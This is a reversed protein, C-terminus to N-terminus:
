RDSSVSATSYAWSAGCWGQDEIESSLDPWRDRADFSLSLNKVSYKFRIPAM